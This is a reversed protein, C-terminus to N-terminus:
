PARWLIANDRGTLILSAASTKRTEGTSPTVLYTTKPQGREDDLELSPVGNVVSLGARPMKGAVNQGCLKKTANLIVLDDTGAKSLSVSTGRRGRAVSRGSRGGSLLRSGTNEALGGVV